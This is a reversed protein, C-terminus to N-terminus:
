VLGGSYNDFSISGGAANSSFYTIGYIGGNQPRLANNDVDTSQLVGNKYCRITNSAVGPDVEIRLVDNDAHVGVAANLIVAGTGVGRFLQLTRGVLQAVLIYCNPDNPNPNYVMPGIACTVGGNVSRVRFQSFQTRGANTRTKVTSRSIYAPTFNAAVTGGSGVLGFTAVGANVNVLGDITAGSLATASGIQMNWQSGLFPPEDARNMSDSFNIVPSM